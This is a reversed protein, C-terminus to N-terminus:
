SPIETTPPEAPAQPTTADSDMPEIADDQGQDASMAIADDAADSEAVEDGPPEVSGTSPDQDMPPEGEPEGNVAAADESITPESQIAEEPEPTEAPEPEPEPEAELPLAAPDTLELLERENLQNNLWAPMGNRGPAITLREVRSNFPAGLAQGDGDMLELLAYHEGAPLNSLWLPQAKELVVSTGELSLRLRWQADGPRLNQLPANLLLWNIPIPASSNLNPASVTILQPDDPAPLAGPNRLGQHVQWTLRAERNSAAEGWPLAAYAVLRHSGASLPPMDLELVGDANAQFLRQPEEQDLQVVVHPGAGLAENFQIPWDQLKLRLTWGEPKLVADAAPSLLELSPQRTSLALSLQQAAGPPAVEQLASSSARPRANPASSRNWFAASAPEAAALLLTLSMGLALAFATARRLLPQLM